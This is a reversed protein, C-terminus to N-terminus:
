DSRSVDGSDRRVDKEGTAVGPNVATAGVFEYPLQTNEVSTPEALTDLNNIQSLINGDFSVSVTGNGGIDSDILAVFKGTVRNYVIDSVTGFSAIIDLKDVVQSVCSEPINSTIEINNRDSLTIQVQISKSVFQVDPSLAFTSSFPNVSELLVNCFIEESEVTLADTCALFDSQFEEVTEQTINTRLKAVAANLCRQAKGIDPLIPNIRAILASVEGNALNAIDLEQRITPVCGYVILDYYILGAHNIKLNFTIDSITYADDFTPEHTGSDESIFTELTAQEGNILYPVEVGNDIEYVQGGVLRLTGTDNIQSPEDSFVTNVRDNDYNDIGVYPKLHVVTNKILFDKPTGSDSELRPDYNELLMDVVYPSRRLSTDKSFVQGEPWFIDGYEYGESGFFDTPGLQRTIIQRFQSNINQNPDDNLFQWKESRVFPEDSFSTGRDSIANYYILKGQSGPIGDPNEVIFPPCVDDTCCQSDDGQGNGSGACVTRGSLEAMSQIIAFIAALSSFIAVLNDFLCLLSAVKVVAAATAEGDTFSLGDILIQINRLLDEIFQLVKAVIYAILALLLLIIALIMALLALWPFLNLFPPLCTKILRIVARVTAFPNSLACLVEIICMIMNLLALFFNYLGLFPAIQNFMTALAKLITNSLDDLNPSIELFGPWPVTLNDIFDLISEPFGEPLEFGPVPITIPAFPVGFGPLPIPPIGSVGINNSSPDCPM